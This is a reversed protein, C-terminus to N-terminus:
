AASSKLALRLKMGDAKLVGTFLINGKRQEEIAVIIGAGLASATGAAVPSLQPMSLVMSQTFQEPGGATAIQKKDLPIAERMGKLHFIEVPRHPDYPVFVGCEDKILVEGVPDLVQHCKPPGFYYVGTEDKLKAKYEGAVLWVTAPGGSRLPFTHEYVFPRDLTLQSGDDLPAMTRPNLEACAGFFLPAALIISALRLHRM